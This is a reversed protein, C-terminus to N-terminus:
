EEDMQLGTVPLGAVARLCRVMELPHEEGRAALELEVNM